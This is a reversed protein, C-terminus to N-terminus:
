QYVDEVFWGNIPGDYDDIKLFIIPLNDKQYIEYNYEQMDDETTLYIGGIETKLQSIVYAGLCGIGNFHDDLTMSWEIGNCFEKGELLKKLELGHGSYYGDYQRYIAGVFKRTGDEYVHYFKTTSRTGMIFFNSHPTYM